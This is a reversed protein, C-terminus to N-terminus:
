FPTEESQDTKVKGSKVVQSWQKCKAMRGLDAESSRDFLPGDEITPVYWTNDDNSEKTTGMVVQKFWPVKRLMNAKAFHTVLAKGTKYSTSKFKILYPFSAPDDIQSALMVYFNLCQTNRIQEGAANVDEWKLTANEPTFPLTEQYQYRTGVLKSVDWTKFLFLPYFGIKEGRKCIVEGSVSDVMEGLNRKEQQVMESTSQMLLIKPILIDTSDFNEFLSADFDQDEMISASRSQAVALENQGM